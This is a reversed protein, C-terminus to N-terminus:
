ASEAPMQARRGVCRSESRGSEDDEVKDAGDHDHRDSAARDERVGGDPHGGDRNQERLGERLHAVSSTDESISCDTYQVQRIILCTRRFLLQSM